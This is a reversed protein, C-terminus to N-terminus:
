AVADREKELLRSSTTRRPLVLSALGSPFFKLFLVVVVGAFADALTSARVQDGALGVLATVVVAGVVAGGVLLAVPALRGAGGRLQGWSRARAVGTWAVILGLLAGVMVQVVVPGATLARVAEDLWGRYVFVLFVGGIVSGALTGSGGIVMVALLELLLNLNFTDPSVTRNTVLFLIVGAYGAYVASIAFAWLRLRTVAVGLSGIVVENERAARLARGFGSGVLVAYLGGGVVVGLLGLLLYWRADSIPLWAPPGFTQAFLTIGQVGGTWGSLADLKLLGPFVLAIVITAIGLYHGRLRIAPLGIVLGFLATAMLAVLIAGPLLVRGTALVIATAYAGVGILAVHAFVERGAVGIVLNMGLLAVVVYAVVTLQSLQYEGTTLLLAVVALVIGLVGLRRGEPLTRGPLLMVAAGVAAVVLLGLLGAGYSAVLASGLVAIVRQVPLDRWGRRPASAPNTTPIPRLETTM